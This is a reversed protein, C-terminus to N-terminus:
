SSGFGPQYLKCKSGVRVVGDGLVTGVVGRRGFAFQVFKRADEIPLEYHRAIHLGPTKCSTNESSIALCPGDGEFDLVSGTPVSSISGIGDLVINAGLFSSLFGPLTRNYESEYQRHISAVEAVTIASFKRWNEDMEGLPVLPANKCVRPGSRMLPGFHKADELIGHANFTLQSVPAGPLGIYVAVVSLTAVEYL